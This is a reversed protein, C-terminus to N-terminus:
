TNSGRFGGGLPSRKAQVALGSPKTPIHCPASAEGIAQAGLYAGEIQHTRGSYTSDPVASGPSESIFLLM